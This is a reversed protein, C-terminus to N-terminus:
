ARRLVGLAWAGILYALVLGLLVLVLAAPGYVFSRLVDAADRSMFSDCTAMALIIGLGSIGLSAVAAVALGVAAFVSLVFRIPDRGAANAYM